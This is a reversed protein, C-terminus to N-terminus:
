PKLNAQIFKSLNIKDSHSLTEWPKKIARLYNVIKGQREQVLIDLKSFYLYPKGAIVSKHHKTFIKFQSKSVRYFIRPITIKSNDSIKQGLEWITKSWKKKKKVTTKVDIDKQVWGSDKQIAKDYKAQLNLWFSSSGGFVKELKIALDESIRRKGTVMASLVRPDIKMRKAATVQKEGSKELIKQIYRGPIIIDSM